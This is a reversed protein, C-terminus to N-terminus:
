GGAAAAVLVSFLMLWLFDWNGTFYAVPIPWLIFAALFALQINEKKM